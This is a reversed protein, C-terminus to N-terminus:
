AERERRSAVFLASAAIVALGAAKVVPGAPSLALAIAGASMGCLAIKKARRSVIGREVMDRVTAGFRPDELIRRYLGPSSRAFCFAALIWFGTTPLVPLFAGVLGALFAAHGAGLWLARRVGPRARATGSVPFTRTTM